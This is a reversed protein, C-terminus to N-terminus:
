KDRRAAWEFPKTFNCRKRKCNHLEVQQKTLYAKYRCCYKYPQNTLTGDITKYYKARLPIREREGTRRYIATSM